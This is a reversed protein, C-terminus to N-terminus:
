ISRHDQTEEEMASTAKIRFASSYLYAMFINKIDVEANNRIDDLLSLVQNLNFVKTIYNEFSNIQSM